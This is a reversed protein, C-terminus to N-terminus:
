EDCKEGEQPDTLSRLIERASPLEFDPVKLPEVPTYTAGDMMAEGAIETLVTEGLATLEYLPRTIKARM